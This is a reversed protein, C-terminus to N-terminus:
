SVEAALTDGNLLVSGLVEGKVSITNGDGAEGVDQTTSVSQCRLTDNHDDGFETGRYALEVHVAYVPHTSGLTSVNASYGKRRHLFDLVAGATTNTLEALFASFAVEPFIRDGLGVGRLKGRTVYKTTENLVQKLGTVAVDGRDFPVTLTVGAGDILKLTGWLNSKIFSSNSM